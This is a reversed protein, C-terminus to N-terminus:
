KARSPRPAPGGEAKSARSARARPRTPRAEDADSQVSSRESAADAAPLVLDTGERGPSGSREIEAAREVASPEYRMGNVHVTLSAVEVGTARRISYRVASDVQRAVEAVPVGYAVTVFVEIRLGDDTTLRVGPRDLGLRRLLRRGLSPNALGTVGYSGQVATTVIDVLARRTVIAKGSLSREPM